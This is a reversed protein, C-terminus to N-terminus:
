TIDLGHSTMDRPIDKMSTHSNTKHEYATYATILRKENSLCPTLSLFYLLSLLELINSYFM